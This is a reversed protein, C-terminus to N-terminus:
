GSCAGLVLHDPGGEHRVLTAAYSDGGGGATRFVQRVETRDDVQTVLPESSLATGVRQEFQAVYGDLVDVSDGTVELLASVGCDPGRFPITAAASGDEIRVGALLGWSDDLESGSTPLAPWDSPLRPPDADPDGILPTSGPVCGNPSVIYRVLLFSEVTGHAKRRVLEFHACPAGGPSFAAARCQWGTSGESAGGCTIYRQQDAPVDERRYEPAGTPIEDPALGVEEAHRLYEEMVEEPDGSVFLLAWWGPDVVPEGEYLYGVGRPIPAGILVTGEQVVLGDRLATGPEGQASALVPVGSGGDSGCSALSVGIVVVLALASGRAVLRATM